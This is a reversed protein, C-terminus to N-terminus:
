VLAILTQTMEDVVSIYKAAGQYQRQYTILNVSEEDVSVGSIGARQAERSQRVTSAAQSQAGAGATQVGLDQVTDIWSGKISAGGLTALSTDQLASLDLAAQNEIFTGNVYRGTQLLSPTALLDARVGINGATTGTFYANVGLAGLVGSSDTPFSFNYGADADIKLKGDAGITASIGDVADLASRIDEVTTDDADDTAMAPVEEEPPGAAGPTSAARAPQMLRIAAQIWPWM